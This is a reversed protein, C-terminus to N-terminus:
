HLLLLKMKAGDFPSLISNTISSWQNFMSIEGNVVMSVVYAVMTLLLHATCSWLEVVDADCNNSESSLRPSSSSSSSALWEALWGALLCQQCFFDM